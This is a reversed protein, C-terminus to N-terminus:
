KNLRNAICCTPRKKKGEGLAGRCSIVPSFGGRSFSGQSEWDGSCVWVYMDRGWIKTGHLEGCHVLLQYVQQQQLTSTRHQERKALHSPLPFRSKTKCSLTIYVRSRMWQM